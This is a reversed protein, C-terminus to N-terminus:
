PYEGTYSILRASTAPNIYWAATLPHRCPALLEGRHHHRGARCDAYRNRQADRERYLRGCACRLLPEIWLADMQEPM